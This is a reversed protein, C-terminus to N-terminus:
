PLRDIIKSMNRIFSNDGFMQLAKKQNNVRNQKDKKLNFEIEDINNILDEPAKIVCAPFKDGLCKQGLLNTFLHKGAIVAEVSKFNLGGAVLVPNLSVEILKYYEEINKVFGLLQINRNYISEEIIKPNNCVSGAIYFISDPSHKQITPLWKEIIYLVAKVNAEMGGGIFGFHVPRGRCRQKIPSIAYDFGPCCKFVKDRNIVKSMIDFDSESIAIVYDAKELNKLELKKEYSYDYFLRERRSLLDKNRYYQVDHTDCIVKFEDNLDRLYEICNMMWAYNIFIYDYHKAIYLRAVWRKLSETAKYYNRESFLDPLNKDKGILIRIKQEIYRKYRIIAPYKKRKNKYFYIDGALFSLGEKVSHDNKGSPVLIDVGYGMKNLNMLTNFARLHSGMSLPVISGPFIFLVSPQKKEPKNAICGNKDMWKISPINSAFLNSLIRPNNLINEKNNNTNVITLTDVKEEEDLDDLAQIYRVECNKCLCEIKQSQAINLGCPSYIFNM